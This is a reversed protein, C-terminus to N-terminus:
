SVENNKILPNYNIKSITEKNIFSTPVGWFHCYSCLPIKERKGAVHADLWKLRVGSNWLEELSNNKINGIVGLRNPDFRVCISVDGDKNIALHNLFDLCIGIEPVVPDVKVYNFSGEPAHIARRAVPVGLRIYREENEIVGNLRLILNPKKYGKFELFKLLIEYQEDAEDDKEIISVALTELNDIIESKKELLLKGNTVINRINKRFLNAAKGFEPYLLPEGNNHLQVVIREPIQKSIQEVLKFDMNGYKISIEPYERDIKRRGCMWCNKNCLSTLEVNITTLGNLSM